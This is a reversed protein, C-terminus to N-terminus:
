VLFRGIFRWIKGNIDGVCPINLSFKCPRCLLQLLARFCFYIRNLTLKLETTYLYWEDVNGIIKTPLRYNKGMKKRKEVKYIINGIIRHAQLCMGHIVPSYRWACMTCPQPIGGSVHLLLLTLVGSLDFDRSIEIKEFTGLWASGNFFHYLFGTFNM